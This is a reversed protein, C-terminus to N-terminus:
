MWISISVTSAGGEHPAAEAARRKRATAGPRTAASTNHRLYLSPKADANASTRPVRAARLHAAHAQENTQTPAAEPLM